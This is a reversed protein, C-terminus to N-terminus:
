ALNYKGYDPQELALCHIGGRNELCDQIFYREKELMSPGGTIFYCAEIQPFQTLLYRKFQEDLFPLPSANTIYVLKGNAKRHVVANLYNTRNRLSGFVGPIKVPNLGTAKLQSSMKDPSAYKPVSRKQDSQVDEYLGLLLKKKKPDDTKEMLRELTILEAEFLEKEPSKQLQETEKLLQSIKQKESEDQSANFAEKLFPLSLQGDHVLIDPHNIPRLSMDLHFDPQSLYFIKQSPIGLLKSLQKQISDRCRVNSSVIGRSGSFFRSIMRGLLTERRYAEQNRYVDRGVLAFTEGKSDRDIFINGGELHLDHSDTRFGLLKGLAVGDRTTPSDQYTSSLLLGPKHNLKRIFQCGDQMWRTTAEITDPAVTQLQSPPYLQNGVQVRVPFGEKQGIADLEQAITSKLTFEDPHLYLCKVTCAGQGGFRPSPKGSYVPTRNPPSVM